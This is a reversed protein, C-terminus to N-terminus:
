FELVVVNLDQDVVREMNESMLDELSLLADMYAKGDQIEKQVTNAFPDDNHKLWHTLPHFPNGYLYGLRKSVDESSDRVKEVESQPKLSSPLNSALPASAPM